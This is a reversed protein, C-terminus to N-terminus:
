KSNIFEMKCDITKFSITKGDKEYSREVIDGPVAYASFTGTKPAKKKIGSIKTKKGDCLSSVQEPKLIVGFMKSINFGCKNKCYVGYKGTVIDGGCVPCKCVVSVSSGFLKEFEPKPKETVLIDTIDELVKKILDDPTKKGEKIEEQVVWWLATTDAKKCSDPLIDYFNRGKQTSVLVVKKGEKKEEAFGRIILNKIITARTASTGISGNEGKKGDDKAKLLKKIRPDDVYKSIRTMDEYLTSQTYRAPPKTENSEIECDSIYGNYKGEHLSSYPPLPKEKRPIFDLFGKKTTVSCSDSLVGVNNGSYEVPSSITVKDFEHPSLFQALYFKCIIDYVNKQEVSLKSVDLKVNTPIIAFHATINEDNFARSKITTDFSSSDLGLNNCAAKVTEPAEKFHESSLYQCDSRNYTIASYDDRLSQTIKMVKDPSYGWMAGCCKNLETLNFPLPPQETKKERKITFQKNTGKLTKSLDSLFGNDLFKDDTLYQELFECKKDHLFKVSINMSDSLSVSCNLTFYLQKVHNEIQRDRNVLMGLTPSVVRGVNLPSSSHYSLSFFRTLNIGFMMDCVSRAYASLGENIHKSNDDMHQLAKRMAEVTTNATDLRKCPGHYNYLRLIEDVLLQGEEDVDGCNVVCDAEKILKGIQGVRNANEKPVKTKWNDFYIPLDNLNWHKYKPDYDEPYCLALLHGSCWVVKDNGSSIVGDSESAKGPLAEAIAQALVKKEAIYLTM